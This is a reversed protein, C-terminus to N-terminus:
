NSNMLENYRNEYIEIQEIPLYDNHQIVKMPLSDQDSAIKAFHKMDSIAMEITLEKGIEPEDKDEKNKNEESDGEFEGDKEKYYANERELERNREEM